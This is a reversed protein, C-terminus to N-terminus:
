AVRLVQIRRSGIPTEVVAEDGARTGLLARGVPSAISILGNRPDAEAPGVLTYTEEEGDEDRVVVQAGLEAQDGHHEEVIQAQALAYELESIRAELLALERQAELLELNDSQDGPDERANKLRGAVEQRQTTRLRHLEEELRAMGARTMLSTQDPSIAGGALRPVM